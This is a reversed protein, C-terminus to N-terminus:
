GSWLMMLNVCSSVRGLHAFAPDGGADEETYIKRGSEDKEQRPGGNFSITLGVKFHKHFDPDEVQEANAMIIVAKKLAEWRMALCAETVKDPVPRVGWAPNERAEWNQIGVAEMLIERVM